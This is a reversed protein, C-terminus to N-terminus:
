GEAEQNRFALEAQKGARDMVMCKPTAYISVVDRFCWSGDVLAARLKRGQGMERSFVLPSLRCHARSLVIVFM